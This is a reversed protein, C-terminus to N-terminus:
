RLAAQISQRERQFDKSNPGEARIRYKALLAAEVQSQSYPYKPLLQASVGGSLLRPTRGEVM